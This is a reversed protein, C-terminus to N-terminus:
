LYLTCGVNRMEKLHKLSFSPMSHFAAENEMSFLADRAHLSKRAAATVTSLGSSKGGPSWYPGGRWGGWVCQGAPHAIM